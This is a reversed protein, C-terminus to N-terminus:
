LALHLATNISGLNMQHKIAYDCTPDCTVFFSTVIEIEVVKEDLRVCIKAYIDCIWVHTDCIWVHM